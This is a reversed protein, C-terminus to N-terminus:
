HQLTDVSLKGGAQLKAEERRAELLGSTRLVWMQRVAVVDDSERAHIEILNNGPTLPIDASFELAGKAPDEAAKYFVKEQHGFLNRAPNYVTIFIDRVAQEDSAVGQIALHTDQTQTVASQLAIRPPSVTLVDTVRPAASPAKAVSQLEATRVYAPRKPDILVKTWGGDARGAVKFTAGPEARAIVRPSAAPAAYLDVAGAAQLGGGAQAFTVPAEGLGFALKETLAVGIKADSVTLQFEVPGKPPTKRVEFDLEVVREEGAKMAKLQERGAHLFVADGVLNRLNVWADLAPGEGTNRVTVRLRAREGLQLNGDGNGKINGGLAPDDLVQYGFAFLPRALGESSIEMGTQSAPDLGAGGAEHVDFDIRDTRSLEHENVTLKLTATRTQGPDVRGFLLEREDFYGYDSDSIARVQYAPASGTNTVTMTLTGSDGGRIVDRAKDTALSVKLVPKKGAEPAAGRSWDIGRAALSKRIREDELREQAGVFDGLRALIGDRTSAPAWVVLDRAMRIEPDELALEASMEESRLPRTRQKKDKKDKDKEKADKEAKAADDGEGVSGYGLFYLPGATIKQSPDARKSTLHTALAEERVLDFRKRGEYAIYEEGVYVPITELDPSVGVSQISIDGPILYQAITLKLALEKDGVKRDNLVQVSGKGFTRRGVLVARGLNRLAGAVIETASASGQDVLVVLPLDAFDYRSDARMEERPSSPGVTSVITGTKLFADAVEVGATLLGGPNDRMDLIVGRVGEKEFEALKARLEKGTTQSFNRNLQVLGVKVPNGQADVGPLVAGIVSDLTIVDRTVLLRKPKDQGERRVHVAVTTGPAGRLRDVAESLAMTVTSEEDIQVIRDGAKMGVKHAPTGDIVRIVTIQGERMGVEIGLGGFSGKTSTKMTDFDDPRLLNTHPDLTGLVGEIIAYEAAQLADDDLETNRRIFRFVERLRKGVSWLADIDGIRFEREATGVRVKVSGAKEPDGQPEVLVQPIAQELGELGAIAMRQPDIREPEVYYKSINFLTWDLVRLDAADYSADLRAFVPLEAAPSHARTDGAATLGLAVLLAGFVVAHPSPSPPRLTKRASM